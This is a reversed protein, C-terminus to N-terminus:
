QLLHFGPLPLVRDFELTMIKYCKFLFNQFSTSPNNRIEDIVLENLDLVRHKTGVRRKLVSGEFGKSIEQFQSDKM